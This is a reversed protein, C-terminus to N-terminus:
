QPHQLAPAGLFHCVNLAVALDMRNSSVGPHLSDLAKTVRYKVTNRHLQLLEATETYSGGTLLFTRLTERRAETAEDDAALLGLVEAVWARTSEIDNALLSTIAVGEDGFSVACSANGPAVAVRRAAQAQSHTRRFGAVGAAPLGLTIRTSPEAAVVRRVRDMDLSSPATTFPLWAWATSGDVATTLPRAACDVVSCVRQVLQELMLLADPETSWAVVGVHHRDLRYGTEREFSKPDVNREALLDHVLSASVNGRASAWRKSEEEYVAFVRQTITDVYYAVVSTMHQLVALKEEPSCDLEQVAPFCQDVMDDKGVSYARVLSNSPVGRQALRLAYEIAATGPQIRETPIGNVLIHIITKVNADTSAHMLELLAEDVDLYEVERAILNSMNRAIEPQRRDMSSAARSVLEMVRESTAPRATTM